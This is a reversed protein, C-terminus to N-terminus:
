DFTTRYTSLEVFSLTTPRVREKHRARSQLATRQKAIQDNSRGICLDAVVHVEGGTPQRQQVPPENERHRVHAAAAVQAAQPILVTFVQVLAVGEGVKHGAGFM